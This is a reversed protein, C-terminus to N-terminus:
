EFVLYGVQAKSHRMEDDEMQDEVLHLGLATPTIPSAGSLVAWAGDTHDMGSISLAATSASGLSGSLDYSFPMDDNGFGRVTDAGLAAEYAVGNITGNGAEIVIYGITEDARETNADEGVHKGVSLNAADAPKMRHTGMSWFVSWESDNASMVQGVVVPNTYRNQYERAEAVWSKDHATVTSTFKVAELTVGDTEQTYVGEEVVIVSVDVNVEDTLGDVRDVKLEFSSREVNRIRTVVPVQHEGSYIPTAVIVASNYRKGLEVTTWASSSVASVSTRILKPSLDAVTNFTGVSGWVTGASNSARITFYYASGEILGTLSSSYEGIEQNGLSVSAEWDAAVQGGDTEGYFLTIAPAELGDDTVSYAVEATTMTIASAAGTAVEPETVELIDNVNVAIIASDSLGGADTVQVTLAYANLAEYDIAGLSTIVGSASDIAFAGGTNGGTIAFSLTDDADVDSAAVTAVVTGPEVNEDVRASGNVAVPAENINTVAVLVEATDSLAPTGNDTVAVTLAYAPTTEFDLAVATTIHGAADIAFAGSENGATIAYSLSTGADVDAAEVTAVSSGIAADEAISGVADVAVPAENVDVVAVTVAATDALGGADTATIDLVYGAVAEYNIAAATTIAGSASDIAFAGGTNGGTIAYSLADDADVDSAAVTAVVTGPAVNEAVSGSADEAVPAENIDTVAVLVDATDSLAPTGNDSVTVTLAYAPTTEFDLAAATTIRGAADIVFAGSENGATIAYSLTTNADVDAAEVAAVAAGVAADEAVSGEAATAVPAENVDTVNVTVVATATAGSEDTVRVELPYTTASEYDFASTATIAGTVNDIVFVGTENGATIAYGLADGEDSDAANVTGVLTEGESNEAVAFVADDVQPATNPGITDVVVDDVGFWGGGSATGVRSIRVFLQDGPNLEGTQFRQTFVHDEKSDPTQWDDGNTVVAQPGGILSVASAADQGVLVDYTANLTRGAAYTETLLVLSLEYHTNDTIKAGASTISTGDVYSIWLRSRGYNWTDYIRTANAGTNSATWNGTPIGAVSFDSPNEVDYSEFDEFLIVSGAVVNIELTAQDTGGNGDSVEVTFTNIGADRIAPTGSLTGDTAVDLWAPGSVKSFSLVAGADPDAASGALTDSYAELTMGEAGVIVDNAFVPADNSDTVTVAVSATDSLGAADTVSVGLTYSSTTEFDLATATRIVGDADIVFAGGTNGSILAFSLADGADPDNVEVTAVASGVEASEAVSGFGNVAVPAENVDTVAVAVAATDTLGGDDTVTVTLAYSSTSEFDLASATTIQGAADIAFAGGTNGGTIEYSLESNADVDSAVVAAVATGVAANEAVSGSQDQAVPAENVDVVALAIAASDSLGGADTARVTLTYSELTEFDLAGAVTIEGSAADIAFAGGANGDVIAYGLVDDADVDSAVVTTVVSGISADENVSASGAVVVPAENENTVNVTVVAAGSEGSRDTATVTLAYSATAEYDLAATTTIEGTSSDIVFAGTEDGATIAYSVVDGADADTAAVTGVVAGAEANEAVALTVDDVQPASNPGVTDVLVDDLGFWGGGSATGVRTVRVFLKDGPNLSGTQFSQGFVHDEKSDPTQWDDGHTVVAQPGGIISVASEADQGVLVDYTANLTRGGAYTETVMVASFTYHTNEAVNAGASTISTGDVNSIWLRSGGYNSTNYIRTANWGTNSSTWNGTSTGAVSFDSASEVDYAEFDEFLIVSGQVVNIQVAAQAVGGNGDAVEVTFTNLGADRIAPTGSLVGDAAVVLWEPGSVKSFSLADGADPDSASGALTDSYVELTMGDAAVIPDNAFVPADNSDTVSVAVSASDSLGGNDSVTVTLVYAGAAEHDLGATTSIAGTAPDITFAGSENGASIAYSLVDGANPDSAEVSGVVAGAALNEAVTFAAASVSPELNASETGLWADKHAAIEAESLANNYAAFLLIGPESDNRIGSSGLVAEPHTLNPVQNLRGVLVGDVYARLEDAATDVVYTIHAVRGYPSAVSQGSEATLRWDARGRLTAGLENTNHWQELRLQWGNAALLNGWTQGFNVSDVVFEYTADGSIASLDVTTTSDGGLAATRRILVDSGTDVADAWDSIGGPQNNINVTINAVGTLGGLDTVTVGLVYQNAVDYNLEAATSIEGTGPDIAFGGAPDGATIAFTFVDGVNSDSATVAGLVIGAPQKEDVEFTADNAVPAYNPVDGRWYEYHTVIEEADLASNYAAFGHIGPEADTRLASNGLTAAAHALNPTRNLRGVLVSDVYVRTEGAVTDVVFVLHVLSGYPSAVSQGSEAAFRWDAVGSQTIGLRGTNSWQEFRLSWGNAALVSLASQGNDEADILFEYTADGSISSLDVTTTTNGALGTTDKIVATTGDDVGVEWSSIGDLRNLVEIEVVSQSILGLSNTASVTLSYADQLEYDLDGLTTIEGSTADLAFLGDGNGGTIAYAVPTNGGTDNANVVGVSVGSGANEAVSMSYIARDFAPPMVVSAGQVGGTFYELYEGGIPADGNDPAADGPKRWAVACHDGGGGEKHLVEIYYREGAVLNIAGSKGGSAWARAGTFGGVSAVQVKNAPQDDTSLWLESADDSTIYFYYAGTVDPRVWGSWRAGYSDGIGSESEANAIVGGSSPFRPYNSNGTLTAISGGGISDFQDRWLGGSTLVGADSITLTTTVSTLAGDPSTVVCYYDGAHGAGVNEFSLSSSSSVGFSTEGSIWEYVFPGDGEVAIDFTVSGGLTTSQEEPQAVIEATDAVALVDGSIVTPESIGPGSWAVAAHDGGGGEKHLLEYYYMEGATLTVAASTQSAYATWNYRSTWGNLSCIATAGAPDTGGSNLRFEVSDDGAVYFTYAGTTPPILYGSIRQGYSNGLSGTDLATVTATTDPANPYKANGTLDSVSAGSIDTYIRQRAKGLIYGDPDESTDVVVDIPETLTYAGKVVELQIRYTGDQPFSVTTSATNTSSFSVSASGAVHTWNATYDAPQLSTGQYDTIDVTFAQSTTDIEVRRADLTPWTLYPSQFDAHIRSTDISAVTALNGSAVAKAMAVGAYAVRGTNVYGDGGNNERGGFYRLADGTTRHFHYFMRQNEMIFRQDRDPLYPLVFQYFQTGGVTYAHTHQMRQWQRSLYDKMRTLVDEDAANLGGYVSMAYAVGATRGGSDYGGQRWAYGINGDEAGGNLTTTSKVWNWSAMMKADDITAGAQKLMALATMAHANIINIGSYGIHPYDGGVGGHGMLGVKTPGNSGGYPPQQWTQIRAALLDAARQVTEDVSTDGTKARYEALFMAWTSLGWNELGSGVHSQDDPNSDEESGDNPTGDLNTAEVPNLIAGELVTVARDRMKNISVRYPKDGSTENWNPDALLIMGYFGTMYGVDGNASGAINEHIKGAAREYLADFKESGLPYAPGFAGAAPLSVTVEVMGVGPRLLQLPMLGDGSEAREIAEAFGQPAGKYGSTSPGTAAFREGFAGMIFDGVQIGAQEAPSGAEVERVAIYSKGSQVQFSGGVPGMSWWDNDNSAQLPAMTALAFSGIAVRAISSLVKSGKM